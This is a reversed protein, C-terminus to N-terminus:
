RGAAHEGGSARKVALLVELDRRGEEGPIPVPRGSQIADVFAQNEALMPGNVLRASDFIPEVPITNTVTEGRREGSRIVQVEGRRPSVATAKAGVVGWSWDRQHVSISVDVAGTAGSALGFLGRFDVDYDPHEPGGYVVRGAVSTVEGGLWRVTDIEHIGSELAM